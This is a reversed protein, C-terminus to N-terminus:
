LIVVKVEDFPTSDFAAFINKPHPYIVKETKIEDKVFQSVREFYPQEFVDALAIKWTPHIRINSM